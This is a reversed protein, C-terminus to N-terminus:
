AAGSLSVLKGVDVAARGAARGVRQEGGRVRVAAVVAVMARRGVAAHLM